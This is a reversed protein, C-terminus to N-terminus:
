GKTASGQQDLSERRFALAPVLAVVTIGILWWFSIQFGGVVDAAASTQLVVAVIAVGLSAGIQQTIRTLMTAHPMEDHAVDSYAVMMPAMIVAGVGLGRVFLAGGLWWGSTGPGAFAFPVTAVATILFAGITLSRAGFRAALKGAVIRALLAGIGQPVLVLAATLVSDGRVQQWYLPLLFMGAYLTAGATFLAGSSAALSRLKVLSIDVAADHGRRLAWIIFAAALVIGCALPVVVDAHTFGGASAVNSLGLVIGVLAPILLALGIVDIRATETRRPTDPAIMRWAMVLGVAVLPVNILFLWRWGASNLLIGGLVPGIVPGLALPVSIAAVTTAMLKKSTSGIAQVALTQMLPFIMGAGFGQLARFAILSTDNWAFACAASFVVFITLTAMWSRKGGFTSQAWGSLPIAAALALLYATVVWQITAPTSHLDASLQDLAITVITSDLIAAAGGVIVAALTRVATRPLRETPPATTSEATM